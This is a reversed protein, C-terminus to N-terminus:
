DDSKELVAYVLKSSVFKIIAGDDLYIDYEYGTEDTNAYGVGIFEAIQNSRYLSTTTEFFKIRFM